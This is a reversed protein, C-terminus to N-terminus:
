RADGELLSVVKNVIAESSLGMQRRLPILSRSSEGFRDDVAIIGLAPRNSNTALTEAVASGLGGIKNHEEVTVIVNVGNAAKRVFNSNFPKLTHFDVVGASINHAKRLVRSAILAEKLISGYGMILADEGDVLVIPEGVKFNPDSHYIPDNVDRELRLYSPNSSKVISLTAEYAEVPDAPAVVTFNPLVRMLAIDELCQHSAGDGYNSLGAHTTVIKVNLKARAITNRIQEWARLAFMAYTVAVPIFGISALGAAVGMLDQESIGVNFSRLPFIESFKRAGTHSAADADLLVVEEIEEGIEVLAKSLARRLGKM